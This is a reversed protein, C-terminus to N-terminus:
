PADEFPHRLFLDDNAVNQLIVQRLPADDLLLRDIEELVCADQDTAVRFRTHAFLQRAFCERADASSGVITALDTANAVATQDDGILVDDVRTDIPHEAVVEGVEDLVTEVERIEGMPGFEEQAFGLPNILGHCGMCEGGRTLQTTIERTSYEEHTLMELEDNRSDQVDADPSPLDGCLIRRRVYAGRLIPRTHLGNTMLTAARFLIGGRSDAFQQPDPSVDMGYLKALRDSFAFATKDTLLDAFTGDNDYVVWDVFRFLEDRAEDGLGDPEVGFHAAVVPHPDAVTQVQLWNALVAHLQSRAAPSDILREAHARADDLSELRGDLAAQLLEEDPASGTLRFSLRTAVEFASVRVRGDDTPTGDLEYLGHFPPSVILRVIGWEAGLEDIFVALEGREEDTIPRRWLSL